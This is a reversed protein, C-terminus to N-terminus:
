EAEEEDQLRDHLRVRQRRKTARPPLELVREEDMAGLVLDIKAAAERQSDELVHGYTNMTVSIQSHGLIQMVVRPHVGQVILFTACSHRLDHFRITDPLGAAKLVTKFQRSLNRPEMPTGVTSPFMLQHEQWVDQMAQREEDQLRQHAKLAAVLVAPLALTRISAETKPDALVLKGNLRQVSCRVTITENTFDIDSWHLGLVEGKRLGLSLALRYLVELRHGRVALLVKRAQEPTLPKIPYREVKPGDVLSAVNRPIRGWKVAQELAIGLVTKAYRVTKTSLKGNAGGQELLAGIMAQVHEPALKALPHKGLHPILYNRVTQEYSRFTSARVQTQVADLWLNLFEAVSRRDPAINFGKERELEARKLKDQVERKTKGYIYRRKRKGDVIGLDISTVWLGNDSRQYIAGESRGRRQKAM